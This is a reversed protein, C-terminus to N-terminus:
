KKIFNLPTFLNFLHIIKLINERDNFSMIDVELIKYVNLLEM